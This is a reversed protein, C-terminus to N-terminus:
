ENLFEIIKNAVGKIITKRFLYILIFIILYFASVILVGYGYNGMSHGIFLGVGINLMLVFFTIALFALVMFVVIGSGTSSKETAELKLLEIRKNTYEKLLNIM